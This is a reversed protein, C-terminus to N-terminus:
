RLQKYRDAAQRRRESNAGLVILVIGGVLVGLWTTGVLTLAHLAAIVTVATGIAVPAQQGYRSGVVLTLIAAVLLGVERIPNTDTVLVVVVTPGFGAILAPGYAAWSGLQPRQRLELLGVALALLAFPLTYAEPLAVDASRMILWWAAIESAAAAWFLVRRQTPPRGARTAAIGLVAGWGVLLAAAQSPARVALALAIVGATYGAWEVASAERLAEPRTFRPHLAAGVILIAGVALVGFAAWEPKAGIRLSVTLVFLQAALAAGLWGLIRARQSKGGLAAVAGVAVAGGFTFITLSPTALAGALGAGGAILGLLLVAVRAARVPRDVDDGSPPETLAVSLMCVTFVGLGALVSAPWALGLGAPAILLTVAAGPVVVSVARTPGGGFGVAAIGAAMTLLVATLVAAVDTAIATAAPPGQWIANMSDYPRVLATHLAPALSALAIFAPAAAAAAAMAGPYSPLRRSREILEQRTDFGVRWRQPGERPIRRPKPVAVREPTLGLQDRTTTRLLEALVVLLVAAAAYVGAPHGNVLALLAILTGSIAVGVTGWGLYPAAPRRAAALAALGISVGGLAATLLVEPEKGATAAFAALAAPGALLVALMGAGGLVDLHAPPEAEAQVAQQTMLASMLVLAAGVLAIMGLAAATTWPRVLSAGLAHLAVATAVALRTYGARADQAVAAALAYGTAITLGLVIPAWWPWGLAAPAGVTALIAAIAAAQHSRPPPLVVAAAIALVVLAAPAQWGFEVGGGVPALDAAWLEGPLALAKIGGALAPYGAILVLIGGAVASGAVPGRRLDQPLLRVAVGVALVLLASLVLWYAPAVLHAVRALAAILAATVAAAAFDAGDLARDARRGSDISPALALLIASILLLAGLGADLVGAGATGFAAGAVVLAGLGAGLSLPTGIRRHAVLRAAVLALTAACALFAAALAVQEGAAPFVTLVGTGVAIPAAFAAAGAAADGLLVTAPPAPLVRQAGALLVGALTYAVMLGATSWTHALAVGVATAGVLFAAILHARAARPTAAAWPAGDASGIGAVGIGAALLAISAVALLWQTAVWGLGLSAPAALATLAAGAVVTEHRWIAPLSLAAAITLLAITAVLPWGPHGARQAIENEFGTVDASGFPWAAAVPALAARLASGATFLSIVILALTSALQPGRRTAEPIARVGLGTIAVAAAIVLLARDPLAVVAVRAASGIVALVMAGAALENLPARRLMLAGVLAVGVALLLTASARLVSPVTAATLLAAVAYVTAAAIALGHLVWALERLWFASRRTATVATDPRRMFTALGDPLGPTRSTASRAVTPAGGDATPYQGAAEADQEADAIRPDPAATAPTALRPPPVPRAPANAIEVARAIVANQAAVVTLVVAWGAPGHILEFLLLPLVPQIAIVVAYRPITLGTARHYLYAIAATAAFVLGAVIMLSTDILSLQALLYGDVPLLALGVAALAEATASLGGRVLSPAIGLLLATALALVTLRIGPAVNSLAVAAFVVAAIGLLLSGLALMINQVSRASAEPPPEPLPAVRSGGDRRASGDPFRAGGDRRATGDPRRTGPPRTAARAADGPRAAGDGPTTPGQRPVTADDPAATTGSTVGDPDPGDAPPTAAQAAPDKAGPPRPIWRRQKPAAKKQRQAEAHALIDRQYLAAQLKGSLKKREGSLRLDEANMDAIAKNLRTVEAALQEPTNGCHPCRVSPDRERGCMSCTSTAAAM